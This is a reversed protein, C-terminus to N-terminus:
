VPNCDFSNLEIAEPPGSGLWTMTRGEVRAFNALSNSVKNQARSVHTISTKRLGMLHKVSRDEFIYKIMKVAVLSDMEIAVPLESRMLALSLGEMRAGLEAELAGRCSFLERCSSFIICGQEDRLVMGSGPRGDELFSGDSILKVWGRDPRVWGCAAAVTRKHSIRLLADPSVATKGKCPDAFLDNKICLLSELYSCLFRKSVEILPPCKDHVIENRVHWCRWLLMLLMARDTDPLVELAQFLWEVGINKISEIAPLRWVNAMEKWLEVSNPCVCFPHYNDEIGKGCIPCIPM